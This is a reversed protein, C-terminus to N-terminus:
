RGRTFFARVDPQALQRALVKAPPLPPPSSQEVLDGENLELAGGDNRKRARRVVYFVGALALLASQLREAAGRMRDGAYRSRPAFGLGQAAGVPRVLRVGQSEDQPATGVSPIARTETSM